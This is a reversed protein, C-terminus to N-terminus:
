YVMVEAQVAQVAQEDQLWRHGRCVLAEPGVRWADLQLSLPLALHQSLCHTNQFHSLCSPYQAWPYHFYYQQHILQPESAFAPRSAHSSPRLRLHNTFLYGGTNCRQHKQVIPKNTSRYPTAYSSLTMLYQFMQFKPVQNQVLTSNM